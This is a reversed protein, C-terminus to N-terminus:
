YPTANVANYLRKTTETPVGYKEGMRIITGGLLDGENNKAKREIDRQYSTKTEYPYTAAKKIADEIVTERLDVGAAKALTYIENMIARLNQMSAEDEFIQGFTKDSYAACLGFSAIFMFKEWIVPYANEHWSYVIGMENFFDFLDQPVIDPYKPDKGFHILGNGGIHTVVGPKELASSVYICNPFVIGSGINERASEYVGVGNLLPIIYADKKCNTKIENIANVLDYGKVCVLILDAQPLESFNEVAKTPKCVIGKTDPTNFILGNERIEKLHEGRGVFYLEYDKNSKAIGTAIKGGYFGGVGGIGFVCIKKIMNIRGYHKQIFRRLAIRACM